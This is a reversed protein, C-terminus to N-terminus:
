SPCAWAKMSLLRAWHNRLMCGPMLLIERGSLWLEAALRASSDPISYRCDIAYGPPHILIDARHHRGAHLGARLAVRSRRPAWACNRGRSCSRLNADRLYIPRPRRDGRGARGGRGSRENGRRRAPSRQEAADTLTAAPIGAIAVASLGLKFPMPYAIPAVAAAAPEPSPPGRM